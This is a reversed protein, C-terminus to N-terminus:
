NQLTMVAKIIPESGSVVANMTDRANQFGFTHTVLLGADVIGERLLTNSVPFNIAPEAFTPILRIKRFILDNVDIEIM